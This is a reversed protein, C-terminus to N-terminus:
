KDGDKKEEGKPSDEEKVADGGITVKGLEVTINKTLKKEDEMIDEM